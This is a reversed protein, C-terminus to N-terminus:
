ERFYSDNRIWKKPMNAPVDETPQPVPTKALFKEIVSLTMLSQSFVLLKDGLKMSKEIISFLLMMKSSNSLKNQTYNKM